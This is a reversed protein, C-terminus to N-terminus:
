TIKRCFINGRNFIGEIEIDSLTGEASSAQLKDFGLQEPFYIKVADNSSGTGAKAATAVLQWQELLNQSDFSMCGHIREWINVVFRDISSQQPIFVVNSQVNVPHPFGNTFQTHRQSEPHEEEVDATKRDSRLASVGWRRFSANAGTGTSLQPLGQHPTRQARISPWGVGDMVSQTGFTSLTPQGITNGKRANDVSLRNNESQSIISSLDLIKSIMPTCSTQRQMGQKGDQILTEFRLVPKVLTGFSHDGLIGALLDLIVRCLDQQLTDMRQEQPTM